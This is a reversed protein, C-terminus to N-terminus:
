ASHTLRLYDTKHLQGNYQEPTMGLELVFRQDEKDMDSYNKNGFTPPLWNKGKGALINFQTLHEKNKFTVHLTGKKYVDLIFHETEIKKEHKKIADEVRNDKYLDDKVGSINEFIINLDVLIDPLRYMWYTSIGVICKKNIRMGNNTKWGNYMHINKNWTADPYYSNCTIKDFVAAVAEEYSQPIARILEQYFYKVNETNFAINKQSEINYTFNDRLKSPLRNKFDTEGIFKRWYELNIREIFQNITIDGDRSYDARCLALKSKIGMGELLKDVRMKEKFLNIGSQKIMECEFVLQELKSRNVALQHMNEVTIDPNDREFDKEFMTTTDIMPITVHILAIEVGTTREADIFQNELYEIDAKYKELLATLHKRNNSYPNKLTEANIIAIIQGGIREQIQIAKLLHDAGRDFPFNAIILDYFRPPNFDLFDDWVINIGKGRCLNALNTDIEVAEITIYEDLKDTKTIWRKAMYQEKFGEILDGKGASPELIYKIKSINQIKDTMKRILHYPTPYFTSNNNFM